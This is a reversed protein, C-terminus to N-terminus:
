IFNYEIVSLFLDWDNQHLNVFATIQDKIPKNQSEVQGNAEPHYVTTLQHRQRLLKNIAISLKNTFERGRDSYLRKSM